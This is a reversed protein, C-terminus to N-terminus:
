LSLQNFIGCKKTDLKIKLPEFKFAVYNSLNVKWDSTITLTLIMWLILLLCIPIDSKKLRTTLYHKM